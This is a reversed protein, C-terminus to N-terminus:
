ACARRRLPDQLSCAGRRRARGPGSGAGLAQEGELLALDVGVEAVVREEVPHLDLVRRDLHAVPMRGSAVRHRVVPDGDGVLVGLKTRKTLATRSSTRASPVHSSAARRARLVISGPDGVGGRGVGPVPVSISSRLVQVLLEVPQPRAAPRTPALRSSSSCAGSAHREEVGGVEAPVVRRRQASPRLPRQGLQELGVGAQLATTSAATARRPRPRDQRGGPAASSASSSRPGDTTQGLPATGKASRSRRRGPRPRQLAHVGSSSSAVIACTTRRDDSLDDHAGASAHSSRRAGRAARGALPESAISPRRGSSSSGGSAPRPDM